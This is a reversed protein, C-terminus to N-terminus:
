LYSMPLFQHHTKLNASYSMNDIIEFVKEIFPDDYGVNKLQAVIAQRKAEPNTTVKDDSVDHLYAAIVVLSEDADEGKLILKALSVVREIHTYDHGTTEYGLQQQVFERIQRLGSIM